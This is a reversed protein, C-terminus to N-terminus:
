TSVYNAQQSMEYKKHLDEAEQSRNGTVRESGSSWGGLWGLEHRGTKQVARSEM